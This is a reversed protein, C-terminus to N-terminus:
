FNGFSTQFACDRYGKKCPGQDLLDPNFVKGCRECKIDVLGSTTGRPVYGEEELAKVLRRLEKVLESPEYDIDERSM